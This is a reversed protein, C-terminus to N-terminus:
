ATPHASAVAPQGEITASVPPDFRRFCHLHGCPVEGRRLFSGSNERCIRQETQIKELVELELHSLTQLLLPIVERM